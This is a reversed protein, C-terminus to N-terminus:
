NARKGKSIPIIAIQPKRSYLGLCFKVHDILFVSFYLKGCMECVHYTGAYMCM